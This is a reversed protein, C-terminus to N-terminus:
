TTLVCEKSQPYIPGTFISILEPNLIPVGDINPIKFVSHQM